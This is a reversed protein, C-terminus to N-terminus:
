LFEEYKPNAFTLQMEKAEENKWVLKGFMLTVKWEAM